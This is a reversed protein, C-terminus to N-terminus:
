HLQSILSLLINKFHKKLLNFFCFRTNRSPLIDSMVELCIGMYEFYIIFPSYKHLVKGDLWSIQPRM